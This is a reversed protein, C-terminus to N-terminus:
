TKIDLYISHDNPEAAFVADALDVKKATKKGSINIVEVQM